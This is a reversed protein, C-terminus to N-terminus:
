YRADTKTAGVPPTLTAPGKGNIMGLQELQAKIVTDPDKHSETIDTQLHYFRVTEAKELAWLFIELFLKM